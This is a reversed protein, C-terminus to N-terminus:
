EALISALREDAKRKKEDRRLIDARFVEDIM